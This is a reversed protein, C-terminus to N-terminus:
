QLDVNVSHQLDSLVFRGCDSKCDLLKAHSDQVLRKNSMERSLMEKDQRGLDNGCMGNDLSVKAHFLGLFCIMSLQLQGLLM